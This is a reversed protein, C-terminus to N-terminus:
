GGAEVGVLYSPVSNVEERMGSTLICGAVWNESNRTRRRALSHAM